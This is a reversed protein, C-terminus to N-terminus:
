CPTCGVAARTDSPRRQPQRRLTLRCLTRGFGTAGTIALVPPAGPPDLARLPSASGQRTWASGSFRYRLSPPITPSTTAREANTATADGHATATSKAGSFRTWSNGSFQSLFRSRITVYDDACIPHIRADIDPKFKREEVGRGLVDDVCARPAHAVRSSPRPAAKAIRLRPRERAMKIGVSTSPREGPPM